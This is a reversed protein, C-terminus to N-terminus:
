LIRSTSSPSSTPPPASLWGQLALLGARTWGFSLGQLLLVEMESEQSQDESYMLGSAGFPPLIRSSQGKPLRVMEKASSKFALRPSVARGRGLLRRAERPHTHTHTHTPPHAPTLSHTHTYTHTYIVVTHTHGSSHLLARTLTNTHM